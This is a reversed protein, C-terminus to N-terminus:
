IPLLNDLIRFRLEQLSRVALHAAGRKLYLLSLQYRVDDSALGLNVLREGIAVKQDEDRKHDLRSFLTNLHKAAQENEGRELGREALAKCLDLHHPFHTHVLNLTQWSLDNNGQADFSKVLPWVLDIVEEQTGEQLANQLLFSRSEIDNSSIKAVLHYVSSARQKDGINLYHQAIYHYHKIAESRNQTRLYLEALKLRVKLDNPMSLLLNRYARIARDYQQREIARQAEDLIKNRKM